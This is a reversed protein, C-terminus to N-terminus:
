DEYMQGVLSVYREETWMEPFESRAHDVMAQRLAAMAVMRRGEKTELWPQSSLWKTKGLYQSHIRALDRLVVKLDSPTWVSTDEVTNLLSYHESTLYEMVMVYVDKAPEIVTHYIRPMFSKIIPNDLRALEVERIHCYRFGTDMKYMEYIKALTLRCGQAMDNIMDATEIDTPKSKLVV